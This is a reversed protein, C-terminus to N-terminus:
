KSADLTVLHVVKDAATGSIRIYRPLSDSIDIATNEAKGTDIWDTQNDSVELNGTGQFSSVFFKRSIYSNIATQTDFVEENELSLSLYNPSQDIITM